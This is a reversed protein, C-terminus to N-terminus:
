TLVSYTCMNYFLSCGPNKEKIEEPKACCQTVPMMHQLQCEPHLDEAVDHFHERFYTECIMVTMVAETMSILFM